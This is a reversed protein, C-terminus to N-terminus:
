LADVLVQIQEDSMEVVHPNKNPCFGRVAPGKIAIKQSIIENCAKESMCVDQPTANKGLLAGEIYGVRQSNGHGEIICIFIHDNHQSSNSEDNLSTDDSNVDDSNVDDSSTNNSSIDDSIEGIDQTVDGPNNLDGGGMNTDMSDGKAVLTGAQFEVGNSCNQFGLVLLFTSLILSIKM